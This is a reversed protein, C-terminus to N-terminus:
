LRCDVPLNPRCSAPYEAIHEFPHQLYAEPDLGPLRATRVLSILCIYISITAAEQYVWGTRTGTPVRRFGYSGHVLQCQCALHECTTATNLDPQISSATCSPHQGGGRRRIRRLRPGHISM